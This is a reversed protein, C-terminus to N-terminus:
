FALQAQWQAEIEADTLSTNLAYGVTAGCETVFADSGKELQIAAPLEWEQWRQKALVLILDHLMVNQNAIHVSVPNEAHVVYHNVLHFGAQKLAITLDAWGQAKWHHFTFILRGDAKLVRACEAFIGSLVRRYQGPAHGNAKLEVASEALSYHWQEDGPLLHRLWVRFFAALDSYQVNDFYPPDTVVFDISADPL